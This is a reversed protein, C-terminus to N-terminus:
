LTGGLRKNHHTVNKVWHKNLGQPDNDAGVPCYRAGLFVVFEGKGGARKWRDYNKQVTCAAEGAQKRYTTNKAYRSLCGFELGARGNEAFRIAAIIPELEKRCEPRVNAVVAARFDRAHKAGDKGQIAELPSLAGAVLALSTLLM